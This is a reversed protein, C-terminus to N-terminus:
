VTEMKNVPVRQLKAGNENEVYNLFAGQYTTTYSTEDKLNIDM